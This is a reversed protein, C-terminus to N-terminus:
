KSQGNKQGATPSNSTNTTSGTHGKSAAPGGTEGAASGGSQAGSTSGSTREKLNPRDGSSEAPKDARMADKAGANGAGPRPQATQDGSAALASCALTFSAIVSLLKKM